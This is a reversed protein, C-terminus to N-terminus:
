PDVFYVMRAIKQQKTTPVPPALVTALEPKLAFTHFYYDDLLASYQQAPLVARAKQM